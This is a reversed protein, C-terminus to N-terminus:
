KIYKEFLNDIYEEVDVNIEVNKYMPFPGVRGICIEDIYHGKNRVIEADLGTIIGRYNTDGIKWSCLLGDQINETKALNDITYKGINFM